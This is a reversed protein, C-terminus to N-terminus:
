RSFRRLLRGLAPFGSQDYLPRTLVQVGTFRRVPRRTLYHVVEISRWTPIIYDSNTSQRSYKKPSRKMYGSASESHPVTM